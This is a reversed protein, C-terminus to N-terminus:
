PRAWPLSPIPLPRARITPRITISISARISGQNGGPQGSGNNPVPLMSNLAGRALASTTIYVGGTAPQIGNVPNLSGTMFGAYLVQLPGTGGGSGSAAAVVIDTCQGSEVQQWTLGSDTSRFLGSAAANTGNTTIASYFILKGDVPTPDAVNKNVNTGNASFLHQAVTLQDAPVTQVGTVPDVTVNANSSDIM